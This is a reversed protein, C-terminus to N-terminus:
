LVSKFLTLFYRQKSDRNLHGQKIILLALNKM